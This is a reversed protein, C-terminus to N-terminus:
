EKKNITLKEIKEIWNNIKDTKWTYSFVNFLVLMFKLVALPINLFAKLVNTFQTM